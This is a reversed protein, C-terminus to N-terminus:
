PSGRHEGSAPLRNPKGEGERLTVVSNPTTVSWTESPADSWDVVVRLLPHSALDSENGLGFHFWCSNASLYSGDTASHRIIPSLKERILSVIAGYGDRNSKVGELRVKLWHNNAGIQNLLLRTPGNANSVVIDIDGDNDIDGFAAGRSVESPKFSPGAKDTVEQFRSDLSRFLQNRQGYPFPQGRLEELIRM